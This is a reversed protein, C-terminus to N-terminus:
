LRRARLVSDHTLNAATPRLPTAVPAPTGVPPAPTPTSEPTPPASTRQFEPDDDFRERIDALDRTANGNSESSGDLDTSRVDFGMRALEDYLPSRRRGDAEPQDGEM